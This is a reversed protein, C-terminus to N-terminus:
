RGRRRASVGRSRRMAGFKSRWFPSVRSPTTPMVRRKVYLYLHNLRRATGSCYPIRHTRGPTTGSAPRPAHTEYAVYGRENSDINELVWSIARRAPQELKRIFEADATWHWMEGLLILFLPTADVTGYYPSHPIEGFQALEGHRLESTASARGGARRHSRSGM